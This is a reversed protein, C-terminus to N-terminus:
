SEQENPENTGEIGRNGVLDEVISSYDFRRFSYDVRDDYDLSNHYDVYDLHYLPDLHPDNEREGATTPCPSYPLPSTSIM